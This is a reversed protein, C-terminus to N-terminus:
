SAKFEEISMSREYESRKVIYWERTLSQGMKIKRKEEETLEQKLSSTAM